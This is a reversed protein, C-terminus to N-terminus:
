QMGKMYLGELRKRITAPIKSHAQWGVYYKEWDSPWVCSVQVAGVTLAQVKSGVNPCSIYPDNWTTPEHSTIINAESTM